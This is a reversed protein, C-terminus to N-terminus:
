LFFLRINGVHTRRVRDREWTEMWPNVNCYFPGSSGCAELLTHITLILVCAEASRSISPICVCVCVARIFHCRAKIAPTIEKLLWLLLVWMAAKTEPKHEPRKINVHKMWQSASPHIALSSQLSSLQMVCAMQQLTIIFIYLLPRSAFGASHPKCENQRWLWLFM